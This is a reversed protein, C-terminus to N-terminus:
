SEPSPAIARLVVRRRLSGCHCQPSPSFMTGPQTFSKRRWGSQNSENILAFVWRDLARKQPLLERKRCPINGTSMVFVTPRRLLELHGMQALGRGNPQSRNLPEQRSCAPSLLSRICECERWLILSAASAHLRSGSRQTGSRCSRAISASRWLRLSTRCALRRSRAKAQVTRSHV